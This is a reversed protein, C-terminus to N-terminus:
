FRGGDSTRSQVVGSPRARTETTGLPSALSLLTSRRKMAATVATAGSAAPGRNLMLLLPSVTSFAKMWAPTTENMAMVVNSNRTRRRGRSTAMVMAGIM